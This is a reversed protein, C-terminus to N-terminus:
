PFNELLMLDSTFEDHQSYLLWKGDRSVDLGPKPPNNLVAVRRVKSTSFDLFEIAANGARAPTIFYVGRENVAFTTHHAVPGAIRTEEGGSVSVRWVCSDRFYYLWKGDSSELPTMGGKQTIQEPESGDGDARIRWIRLEGSRRSPFYIWKGDRSWTPILDDGAAATLRRHKGGDAHITYIDAGEERHLAFALM